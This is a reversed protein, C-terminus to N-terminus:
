KRGTGKLYIFDEPVPKGRKKRSIMETLQRASIDMDFSERLIRAQEERDFIGNAEFMAVLMFVNEPYSTEGYGRCLEKARADCDFCSLRMGAEGPTTATVTREPSLKCVYVAKESELWRRLARRNMRLMGQIEDFRVEGARAAWRALAAIKKAEETTPLKQRLIGIHKEQFENVSLVHTLLRELESVRDELNERRFREQSLGKGLTVFSTIKERGDMSESSYGEDTGKLFEGAPIGTCDSIKRLTELSPERKGNEIKRLHSYSIGLLKAFNARDIKNKLRSGLLLSYNFMIKEGGNRHGASKGRLRHFCRLPPTGVPPKGVLGVSLSYSSLLMRGRNEYEM